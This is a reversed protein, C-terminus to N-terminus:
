STFSLATFHSINTKTIFYFLVYSRKRRTNLLQITPSSSLLYSLSPLLSIQPLYTSLTHTLSLSLSQRLLLTDRSYRSAGRSEATSLGSPNAMEKQMEGASSRGEQKGRVYWVLPLSSDLPFFPRQLIPSSFSLLSLCNRWSQIFNYAKYQLWGDGELRRERERM